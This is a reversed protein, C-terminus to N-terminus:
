QLTDLQRQAESKNPASEDAVIKKLYNIAKRKKGMNKYAMASYYLADYYKADSSKNAASRFYLVASGYQQQRYLEMGKDFDSRSLAKETQVAPTNKVVPIQEPISRGSRLTNANDAHEEGSVAVVQQQAQTQREKEESPKLAVAAPVNITSEKKVAPKEKPLEKKKVEDENKVAVERPKAPANVSDPVAVISTSDKTVPTSSLHEPKTQLAADAFLTDSDPDIAVTDGTRLLEDAGGLEFYWLMSFLFVLAAAIGLPKGWQRGWTSKPPNNKAAPAVPRSREGTDPMGSNETKNKNDSVTPVTSSTDNKPEAPKKDKNKPIPFKTMVPITNLLHSLQQVGNLGEIADNCIPCEILHMEVAYLEEPQLSKDLYGQLQSKSLCATNELIQLLRHDM